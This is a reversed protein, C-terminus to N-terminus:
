KGYNARLYEKISFRTPQKKLALNKVHETIQLREGRVVCREIFAVIEEKNELMPAGAMDHDRWEASYFWYPWGREEAEEAVIESGYFGIGLLSAKRYPVNCDSTGHFLMQPCPESQWKPRGGTSFIAGAFSIVGAYNFDGLIKACEDGNCIAYEAQLSAIAGASSGSVVVKSPDINWESAKTLLFATASFLDEVAYYVAQKMVGIMQRIGKTSPPNKLGLRYDISVVDYGAETLMEFYPLYDVDARDGRAFAGGFLFVVCPRLGEVPAAYHDLMLPQGGKEAYQLTQKNLKASAVTATMLMMVIFILRRM